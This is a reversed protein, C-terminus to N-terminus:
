QKKIIAKLQAKALIRPRNSSQRTRAHFMQDLILRNYESIGAAFYGQLLRTKEHIIDM